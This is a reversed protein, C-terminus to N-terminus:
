SFRRRAVFTKQGTITWREDIVAASTDVRQPPRPLQTSSDEAFALTAILDAAAIRPLVAALESEDGAATLLPYDAGSHLLVSRV